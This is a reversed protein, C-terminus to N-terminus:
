RNSHSDSKEEPNYIKMVHIVKKPILSDFSVKPTPDQSVDDKSHSRSYLNETEVVAVAVVVVIPDSLKVKM